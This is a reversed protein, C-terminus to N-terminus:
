ESPSRTEIALILVGYEVGALHLKSGGDLFKCVFDFTDIWLPQYDIRKGLEPQKGLVCNPIPPLDEGKLLKKRAAVCGYQQEVVARGVWAIQL